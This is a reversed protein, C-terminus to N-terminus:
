IVVCPGRMQRLDLVHFFNTRGKYYLTQTKSVNVLRDGLRGNQIINVRGVVELDPVSFGVTARDSFESSDGFSRESSAALSFAFLYSQKM